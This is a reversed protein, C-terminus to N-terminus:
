AAKLPVATWAAPEGHMVPDPDDHRIHQPKTVRYVDVDMAYEEKFLIRIADPVDNHLAELDRGGLVFGPLIDSTLIWFHETGSDDTVHEEKVPIVCSYSRKAM